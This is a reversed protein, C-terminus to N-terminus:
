FSHATDRALGLSRRDAPGSKKQGEGTCPERRDLWACLDAMQAAVAARTAADSCLGDKSFKTHVAPICVQFQPQVTAGAGLLLARLDHQMRAGGLMGTSTSIVAIPKGAFASSDRFVSDLLNRLEPPATFNWESAAIVVADARSVEACLTHPWASAAGGSTREEVGAAEGCNVEHLIAGNTLCAAVLRLAHLNQAAGRAGCHIGLIHVLRVRLM